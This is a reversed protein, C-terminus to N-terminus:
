RVMQFLHPVSFDRGRWQDDNTSVRERESWFIAAIRFIQRDFPPIEDHSSGAAISNLPDFDKSNRNHSLGPRVPM